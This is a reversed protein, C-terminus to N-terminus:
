IIISLDNVTIENEGFRGVCVFIDVTGVSFVEFFVLRVLMNSTFRIIIM